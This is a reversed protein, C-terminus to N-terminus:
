IGNLVKLIRLFGSLQPYQSGEETGFASIAVAKGDECVLPGGSMGYGLLHDSFIFAEEYVSYYSPNQDFWSKEGLKEVGTKVSFLQGVSIIPKDASSPFGIAFCNAAKPPLAKSVDLINNSIKEPFKVLAFDETYYYTSDFVSERQHFYSDTPFGIMRSFAIKKPFIIEGEFNEVIMAVPFSRMKALDVETLPESPKLLGDLLVFHGSLIFTHLSTLLESGDAVVFASAKSVDEFVPCVKMGVQLCRAIQLTEMTINKELDQLSYSKLDAEEIYRVKGAPVSIRVVSKTATKISDPVQDSGILKPDAWLISPILFVIHILFKM